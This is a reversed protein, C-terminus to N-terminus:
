ILVKGIFIYEGALEVALVRGGAPGFDLAEGAAGRGRLLGIHQIFGDIVQRAHPALIVGSAGHPMGYLGGEGGARRGCIGLM